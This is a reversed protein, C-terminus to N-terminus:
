LQLVTGVWSPGLPFTWDYQHAVSEGAGVGAGSGALPWQPRSQLPTGGLQWQGNVGDPFAVTCCIPLLEVPNIVVM